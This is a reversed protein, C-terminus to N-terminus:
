FECIARYMNLDCHRDNWSGDPETPEYMPGSVHEVTEMTMCRADSNEGSPGGWRDNPQNLFFQCFMEDCDDPLSLPVPSASGIWSWTSTDDPGPEQRLGIWVAEWERSAVAEWVANQEALSNIEVLRAGRSACGIRATEYNTVRDCALYTRGAIQFRECVGCELDEGNCDEDITNGCIEQADPYIRPNGDNCDGGVEAPTADGCFATPTGFGDRDRDLLIMPTEDISGDCDEDVANGCAPALPFTVQTCEFGSGESDCVLRGRACPGQLFGLECSEDMTTGPICCDNDPVGDCDQDLGDCVEPVPSCADAADPGVDVPADPSTDPGVDPPGVDPPGVDVPGVDVPGVDVPGVDGPGIDSMVPGDSSVDEGVDAGADEGM